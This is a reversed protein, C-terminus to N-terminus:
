KINYGDSIGAIFSAVPVVIDIALILIGLAQVAKNNIRKGYLILVVGVLGSIAYVILYHM